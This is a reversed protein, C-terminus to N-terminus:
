DLAGGALQLVGKSVVSTRNEVSFSIRGSATHRVRVTLNDGPRIRGSFKLGRGGAIIANWDTHQQLLSHIMEIQAAAPMIPFDPFHGNFFPMEAAVLCSGSLADGDESRSIDDFRFVPGTM